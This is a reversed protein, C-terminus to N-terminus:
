EGGDTPRLEALAEAAAQAYTALERLGAELEVVESGGDDGNNYADAVAELEHGEVRWARTLTRAVGTAAGIEAADPEDRARRRALVGALKDSNRASALPGRRAAYANWRVELDEALAEGLSALRRDTHSAVDRSDVMFCRRLEVTGSPLKGEWAPLPFRGFSTTQTDGGTAPAFPAFLLRGTVRSM